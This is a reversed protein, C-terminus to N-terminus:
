GSYVWVIRRASHERAREHAKHFALSRTEGVGAVFAGDHKRVLAAYANHVRAAIRCGGGCEHRARRKAGDVSPYGYSVGTAGTAPNVAIAGWHAQAAVPLAFLLALSAATACLSQHVLKSRLKLYSVPKHDGM